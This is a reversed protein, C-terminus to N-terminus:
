TIGQDRRVTALKVKKVPFFDLARSIKPSYTTLELLLAVM